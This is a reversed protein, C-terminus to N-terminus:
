KCAGPFAVAARGDGTGYLYLLTGNSTDCVVGVWAGSPLNAEREIRLWPAEAIAEPTKVINKECGVLLAGALALATIIAIDKLRVIFRM